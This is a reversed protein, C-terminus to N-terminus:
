GHGVSSIVLTRADAPLSLAFNGNNDTTTGVSTGKALVSAGIIPQGTQDTVRGAISRTQAHLQTCLVMVGLMLALIKRM